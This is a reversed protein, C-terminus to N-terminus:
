FDEERQTKQMLIMENASVLRIKIALFPERMSRSVVCDTLSNSMFKVAQRVKTEFNWLLEDTIETEIHVFYLGQNLDPFEVGQVFQLTSVPLDTVGQETLWHYVTTFLPNTPVQKRQKYSAWMTPFIEGDTLVFLLMLIVGIIPVIWLLFKILLVIAVISTLVIVLQYYWKLSNIKRIIQRIQKM